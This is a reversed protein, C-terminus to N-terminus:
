SGQAEHLVSRREPEGGGGDVADSQHADTQGGPGLRNEHEGVVGNQLRQGIRTAGQNQPTGGAVRQPQEFVVAGVQAAEVRGGAPDELGQPAGVALADQVEVIGARGGAGDGDAFLVDVAAGVAQHRGGALVGA